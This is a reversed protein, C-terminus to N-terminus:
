SFLKEANRLDELTDIEYWKGSIFIPEVHIGSDVLEQIMDTLYAKLISSAEHFRGINNKMLEDYKNVFIDSGVSSFKVIGLFESIKQENSSINKKIRVIHNKEDTLVNEAETLTHSTRGIYKDRWNSDVAISIEKKSTLIQKVIKSEFIIDSYLVLIENKLFNRAEMLSGLIDHESHKHDKVYKINKVDFKESNPGVIVIIDNIGVQNLADIQYSLLSKGNVQLLSKPINKVDDSIRKGSGAAIIIANM